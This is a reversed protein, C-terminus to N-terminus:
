QTHVAGPWQIQSNFSSKSLIQLMLIQSSVCCSTSVGWVLHKLTSHLISAKAHGTAWTCPNGLLCSLSRTALPLYECSQKMTIIVWHSFYPYLQGEPFFEVHARFLLSSTVDQWQVTWEEDPFCGLSPSGPSQPSEAAGMAISPAHPWGEDWVVDSM